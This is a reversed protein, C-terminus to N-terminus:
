HAARAAHIIIAIATGGLTLSVPVLIVQLLAENGSMTGTRTRFPEALFRRLSKDATRKGPTRKGRYIRSMEYPVGFFVVAYATGIVVQFLANASTWFTVWFVALLCIWCALAIRYIHPHMVTEIPPAAVALSRQPPAAGHIDPRSHSAHSRSM